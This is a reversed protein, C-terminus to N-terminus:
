FKDSTASGGAASPAATEEDNDNTKWDEDKYLEFLEKAKNYVEESAYGNATYAYGKYDGEDGKEDTTKMTYMQAYHDAPRLEIKSILSRAPKIASRTNIIIAPGLDLFQPFLFMFRYTTAAAPRSDPDGPIMSGFEMLGSEKVSGKTDWTITEKVGKIKVDFKLNAFGSDWNVCDSSRALIGRDDGRPSWLVVEKKMFIPVIDIENGLAQEALTHWFQGTKAENYAEVEPSVAQLLKVRPIIIDSSDVNGLKVSKDKDKGQLYAPLANDTKVAVEKNEAM